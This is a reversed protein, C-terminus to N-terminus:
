RRYLARTGRHIPSGRRARVSASGPAAASRPRMYTKRSGYTEGRGRSSLKDNPPAFFFPNRIRSTARPRPKGECSNGAILHLKRAMSTHRGTRSRSIWEQNLCKFWYCLRGVPSMIGLCLGPPYTDSFAFECMGIASAVFAIAIVLSRLSRWHCNRDM